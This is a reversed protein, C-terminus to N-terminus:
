TDIQEIMKRHRINESYGESQTITNKFTEVDAKITGIEAPSGDNNLGKKSTKPAIRLAKRLKEFVTIDSEISEVSNWLSTDTMFNTLACFTNHLPLNDRDDQRLQIKQLQELETYVIKLRQTLVLYPRDFPFGYGNGQHKGELAWHILSFAALTPMYKLSEECCASEQQQSELMDILHTHRKIIPKLARLRRQLKTTIGYERVKKRINAYETGLLDKGIDRLFHFHCIFDLTHPFVISVAKMIAPSMDHVLALPEGFLDRLDRLFPIIDDSNESPLKCNGLVIHMVSDLGSMLLPSKAEYTADVHLIYGGNSAMARKIRASSNRHALTLYVIFKKGLYAIESPSISINQAALDEVIRQDALHEVFLAKGVYVLIDYGFNCSPPVLRSLEQSRYITGCEQCIRITERAKFKGIHLTSVTRTESKLVYLSSTDQTCLVDQPYFDVLPPIAFLLPNAIRSWIKERYQCLCNM